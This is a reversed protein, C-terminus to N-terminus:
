AKTIGYNVLRDFYGTVTLTITVPHDNYNLWFWGHEGAFPAVLSGNAGSSADQEEYRVFMEKNAAQPDHGHYDVYVQGRDVKWSYLVVKSAALVAKIETQSEPPITITLTETRPAETQSQHVGPNPLPTPEGADPVTAQLIKENGSIVDTIEIQHGASHMRTLGLMRGAGTPDIGYEAPLVVTVLVLAAAAVAVALSTLIRRLSPVQNQFPSSTESM